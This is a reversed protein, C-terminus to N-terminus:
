PVWLPVVLGSPYMKTEFHSGECTVRITKGEHYPVLFDNPMGTWESWGSPGGEIEWAVAADGPIAGVLRISSFEQEDSLTLSFNRIAAISDCQWEHVFRLWGTRPEEPGCTIVSTAVYEDWHDDFYESLVRHLTLGNIGSYKGLNEITIRVGRPHIGIHKKAQEEDTIIPGQNGREPRISPAVIPGLASDGGPLLLGGGDQKAEARAVMAAPIAAGGIGLARLFNRRKM